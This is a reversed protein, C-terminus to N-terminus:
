APQPAEVEAKEEERILDFLQHFVEPPQAGSVAHKGNFIFCPVGQIGIQRAYHDEALIEEAMDGSELFALTADTELGAEGALAALVKRNGIDQGEVFYGDFLRQLVAEQHGQAAAYRILRHSDITNPTRKIGPFDFPIDEEKGAARVQSYILEAHTPSGFKRSLYTARDMGEAPMDPNLQFARWNIVLGELSRDAMARELRRKGIYCWPCVTDSFVDLVM